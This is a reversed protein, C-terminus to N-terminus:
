LFDERWAEIVGAIEELLNEKIESNNKVLKLLKPNNDYEQEIFAAVDDILLDDVLDTDGLIQEYLDFIEPEMFDYLEESGRAEFLIKRM